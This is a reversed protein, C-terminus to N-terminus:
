LGQNTDYWFFSSALLSLIKFLQHWVLLGHTNRAALAGMDKKQYSLAKLSM